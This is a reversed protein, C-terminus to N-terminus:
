LGIRCRVQGRSLCVECRQLSYVDPDSAVGCDGLAGGRADPSISVFPVATTIVNPSVSYDQGIYNQGYSVAAIMMLAAVLIKKVKM